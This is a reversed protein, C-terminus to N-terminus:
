QILSEREDRKTMLTKGLANLNEKKELWFHKEEFNLKMKKRRRDRLDQTNMKNRNKTKKKTHNNNNNAILGVSKEM